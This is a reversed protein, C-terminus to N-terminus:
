ECPFDGIDISGPYYAAFIGTGNEVNSYIEIPEAFPDPRQDDPNGYEFALYYILSSKLYRDYVESANIVNLSYSLSDHLAPYSVLYNYPTPSAIDLTITESTTAESNLRIYENYARVGGAINDIYSNFPDPLTSFSRYWETKPRFFVPSGNDCVLSDEIAECVRGDYKISTIDLWYSHAKQGPNDISVNIIASAPTYRDATDRQYCVEFVPPSPVRDSARVVEYGPVQAEVTYQKGVQPYYDSSYEDQQFVLTDVIREDEYLVVAANNVTPFNQTEDLPITETLTIRITSDPNLIGNLVVQRGATPFPLDAEQNCSSLYM